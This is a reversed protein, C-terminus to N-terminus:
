AMTARAPAVTQARHAAPVSTTVAASIAGRAWSDLHAPTVLRELSGRRACTVCLDRGALIVAAIEVETSDMWAPAMRAVTPAPLATAALSTRSARIAFPGLGDLTASVHAMELRPKTAFARKALPANSVVQDTTIQTARTACGGLGGLRAHVPEM